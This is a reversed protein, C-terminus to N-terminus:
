NLGAVRPGSERVVSDIEDALERTLPHARQDNEQCSMQTSKLKHNM